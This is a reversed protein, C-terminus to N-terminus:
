WRPEAPALCVGPSGGTAGKWPTQDRWARWIPPKQKLLHQVPVLWGEKCHVPHLDNSHALTGSDRPLPPAMGPALGATPLCAAGDRQPGKRPVGLSLTTPAGLAAPPWHDGGHHHHEMEVVVGGLGPELRRQPSPPCPIGLCHGSERLHKGAGATHCNRPVPLGQPCVTWDGPVRHAPLQLGAPEGSSFQFTILIFIERCNMEFM